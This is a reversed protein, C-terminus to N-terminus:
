AILYVLIYLGSDQGNHTKKKM